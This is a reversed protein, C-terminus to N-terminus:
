HNASSNKIKFRGSIGVSMRILLLLLLLGFLCILIAQNIKEPRYTFSVDYKGAKNVWIGKFTQNARIYDVKRGNLRTVFDEPYYTEGLVIIGPGSAEVSFHTSNNTLRYGGAPAVRYPANNNLVGQPIFQSEVAAFPTRLKDALAELIDTPKHVKFVQNVFFARPWVTEREWVDLDSSHILKVGQPMQTGPAAVIYGVGLLDLAATRVAIQDSRILRLWVWNNIVPYDVIDLLKEFHGNRLAEVSVIGEFGVISNYGPFMVSGEGIVRLPMMKEKIRNKVFEIAASKNSFNPRATPNQIYDDIVGIGTMLHMGHRANLLLFCCALIILMRKSWVGSEAQRYLQLIGVVIVAFVILFFLITRGSHTMLIYVLWLGPFTSLSLAVILKKHKESADFYRQIGFGALVLGLIVMPVSFVNFVHQIKNIFPISILIFKPVLGYAVSLALFFLLMTGLQVSKYWRLSVIASSLCLLVFLNTSPADLTGNIDQFFFNDFFGIIRWLPFTAAGLNDYVTFSKNLADLFLLWYPSSIMVIALGFGGTMLVSRIWGRRHRVHDIFVIMGLAHMFCATVVGEKPTGANLQLWTVAALLLGQIVCNGIRQRPLALMEGLRDWQLVIWPAYTLVFFALHNFRFAFFGLFCSSIAILSSAGFHRTLRFVLLGMGMAFLVKSLVFKIDWGVASGGLSIPIWHLIDGIMSQGQAFLPTGGGAYRSWFPFELYRMLAEYQVVTNPVISWATSGVDSGRFNETVVDLPFGPLYPPYPYLSAVGAPSVFSMGFFVVPYCSVIAAILGIFAISKKPNARVCIKLNQVGNIIYKNRSAFIVFCLLGLLFLFSLLGYGIIIWGRKIIYHSWSFQNEISSNEMLIIPDNATETTQIILTGESTDMKNIQQIPRFDRASFKKIVHGQKNEIQADKIKVVASVNIPDFRISRIAKSSSLSFARKQSHGNQVAIACSDAENYGRGVDYFVQSFGSVSTELDMVFRLLNTECFDNYAVLGVCFLACIFSAVMVRQRTSLFPKMLIEIAAVLLRKMSLFLNKLISATDPM